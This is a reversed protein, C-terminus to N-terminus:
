LGELWDELSQEQAQPAREMSSRGAGGSRAPQKGVHEPKTTLGLLMDLEDDREEGPAQQQAPGSQQQQQQQVPRPATASPTAGAAHQGPRYPAVVAVPASSAGAESRPLAAAQLQQQQQQRESSIAATGVLLESLLGEVGEESAAMATAVAPPTAPSAAAAACGAGAPPLAQAADGDAAPHAAEPPRLQLGSRVPPETASQEFDPLEDEAADDSREGAAWEDEEGSFAETDLLQNKPLLDLCTALGNLDISLGQLVSAAVCPPSVPLSTQFLNLRRCSTSHSRVNVRSAPLQGRVQYGGAEAEPPLGFEQALTVRSRYYFAQDFPEVQSLLQALDAGQSQRVPGLAAAAAAQEEAEDHYRRWAPSLTMFPASPTNQLWPVLSQLQPKGTKTPAWTVPPPLPPAGAAGAAGVGLPAQEGEGEGGISRHSSSSAAPLTKEASSWRWQTATFRLTKM